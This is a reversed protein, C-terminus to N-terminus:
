RIQCYKRENMSIISVCGSMPRDFQAILRNDIMQAENMTVAHIALANDDDIISRTEGNFVSADYSEDVNGNLFRRGSTVTSGENYNWVAYVWYSYQNNYLDSNDFKYYRNNTAEFAHDNGNFDTYGFVFYYENSALQEDSIDSKVVMTCTTGNGKRVLETPTKPRNYVALTVPSYNKADWVYLYPGTNSVSM